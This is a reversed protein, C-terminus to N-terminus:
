PNRTFHIHSFKVYFEHTFKVQINQTFNTHISNESSVCSTCNKMYLISYVVNPLCLFAIINHKTDNFLSNFTKLHGYMGSYVIATNYMLM